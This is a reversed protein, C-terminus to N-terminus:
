SSKSDAKTKLLGFAVLEQPQPVDKETYIIIREVVITPLLAIAQLFAGLKLFPPHLHCVSEGM